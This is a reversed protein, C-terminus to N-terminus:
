SGCQREGSIHQARAACDTPNAVVPPCTTASKSPAHMATQRRLARKCVDFTLARQFKREGAPKRRLPENSTADFAVVRDAVTRDLRREIRARVDYEGDSPSSTDVIEGSSTSACGSGTARRAHLGTSKLNASGGICTPMRVNVSSLAHHRSSRTVSSPLRTDACRRDHAAM